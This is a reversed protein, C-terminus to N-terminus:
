ARFKRLKGIVEDVIWRPTSAGTTVGVTRCNEFWDKKLSEAREIFYSRPNIKQSVEWLRTSNSSEPSGVIIMVENEAALQRVEGQRNHTALCLTDVAEAHPYKQKIFKVAEKVFEYNQTTQSIVAIKRKLDLKLKKLNQRNEVFVAEKEAWEFIGKVEKHEREGVIVIQCLKKHFLKAIRQVKTVRPCTTDVLNINTTKLFDYIEPGMGHATIVLTGIKDKKIKLARRWDAGADIKKVGLEEIRKVVDANHVLSGLVYIPKKVKPDAAIKEVIRYAREVGECFGIYRSKKIRM